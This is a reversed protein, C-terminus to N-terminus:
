LSLLRPSFNNASFITLNKERNKNEEAWKFDLVSNKGM